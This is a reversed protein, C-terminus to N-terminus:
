EDSLASLQMVKVTDGANLRTTGPPVVILADATRLGALPHEDKDEVSKVTPSNGSRSVHARVYRADEGAGEITSELRAEIVRHHLKSHGMLRRILPRVFIDFSLLAGIPNGPLVFIPTSEPGVVGFGQAGGPTMNVRSIEVHGIERIVSTLLDYDESNMGCATIIVDARVLQDEITSRILDPDSQLPGVRFTMAGAATSATTLAIGNIDPLLDELTGPDALESGVTLIVVRPKPHVWIQGLNAAALLAVHRAGITTGQPLLLYERDDDNTTVQEALVCGVSGLLGVELSELPTADALVVKLHDDVSRM